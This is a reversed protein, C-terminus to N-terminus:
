KDGNQETKVKEPSENRRSGPQKLPNYYIYELLFSRMMFATPIM